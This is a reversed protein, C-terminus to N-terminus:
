KLTTALKKFLAADEDRKVARLSHQIETIYRLLIFGLDGSDTVATKAKDSIEPHLRLLADADFKRGGHFCDILHTTGGIQIRALFHGPYNCGDVQCGLRRGLLMFMCALSTPNGKRSDIVHCIDYNELADAQQSDGKFRGTKFLWRRLDNASPAVLDEGVEEALMDLSDSLSPRLTVGDHMFDCIQRLFNEFSEWDDALSEVGSTPVLWEDRLTERRGPQLLRSLRKKGATNINIGLAALDHSIDGSLESIREKVIPRVAPDKDDLLRILYPLDECADDGASESHRDVKPM